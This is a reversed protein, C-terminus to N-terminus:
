RVYADDYHIFLVLSFLLLFTLKMKEEEEGREDDHDYGNHKQLFMSTADKEFIDGRKFPCTLEVFIIMRKKLFVVVIIL